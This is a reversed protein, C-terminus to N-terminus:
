QQGPAVRVAYVDVPDDWYDVTARVFSSSGWLKAAAWGADDNPELQDPPPLHASVDELAAVIDLSGWGSLADRGTTCRACGTSPSADDASRELIAQLQNGTLGPHLALLLAAAASVQPVAFSTGDGDRYDRDACDSYGQDVCS